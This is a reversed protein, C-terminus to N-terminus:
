EKELEELRIRIAKAASELREAHYVSFYEASIGGDAAMAVAEILGQWSAYSAIIVKDYTDM